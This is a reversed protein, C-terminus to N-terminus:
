RWGFRGYHFRRSTSGASTRRGRKYLAYFVLSFIITVFAWGAANLSGASEFEPPAITLTEDKSKVLEKSLHYALLLTGKDYRASKYEPFLFKQQLKEITSKPLVSELKKGLKVQHLQQVFATYLLVENSDPSFDRKNRSDELLVVSLSFGAKQAVEKALNELYRTQTASLVRNEDHLRLPAAVSEGFACLTIFIM